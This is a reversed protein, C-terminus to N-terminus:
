LYNEKLLYIKIYFNKRWAEQYIPELFGNKLEKPMEM